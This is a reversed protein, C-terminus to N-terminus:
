IGEGPWWSYQEPVWKLNQQVLFSLHLQVYVAHEAEETLFSVQLYTVKLKILTPRKNEERVKASKLLLCHKILRIYHSLVKYVATRKKKHSWWGDVPIRCIAQQCIVPTIHPLPALWPGSCILIHGDGLEGVSAWVVATGPADAQPFCDSWHSQTNFRLLQSIM